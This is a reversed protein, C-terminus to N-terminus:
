RQIFLILISTFENAMWDIDVSFQLIALYLQFVCLLSPSTMM